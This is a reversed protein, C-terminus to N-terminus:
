VIIITGVNGIYLHSNYWTLSSLSASATYYISVTGGSTVKYINTNLSCSVYLNGSPDITIDWPNSINAFTSVSGGASILRIANAQNDCAFINGASSCIIGSYKSGSVSVLQSPTGGSTTNKWIETPDNYNTSYLNTGSVAVGLALGVNSSVTSVVGGTTIKRVSNAIYQTVYLNNASDIAIFRNSAFSAGSGTGDTSANNGSGALLSLVGAPTVKWIKFAGVDSVFINGTSDAVIGYM